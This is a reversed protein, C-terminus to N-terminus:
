VGLVRLMFRIEVILETAIRAAVIESGSTSTEVKTHRKSVWRNPKNKLMILIDTISRRTIFAHAYDAHVYVTMRVNRGKPVLLDNSPVCM